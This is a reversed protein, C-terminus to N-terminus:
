EILLKRDGPSIMVEYLGEFFLNKDEASWLEWPRRTKTEPTASKGDVKSEKATIQLVYYM